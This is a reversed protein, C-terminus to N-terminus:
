GSCRSRRSRRRWCARTRSSGSSSRACSTSGSRSSPRISRRRSGSASAPFRRAPTRSWARCSTSARFWRRRLQERRGDHTEKATRTRAVITAWCPPRSRQGSGHRRDARSTAGARGPLRAPAAPGAAGEPRDHAPQRRRRVGPTGSTHLNDIAAALQPNRDDLMRKMAARETPPTSATAGARSARRARRLNGETWVKAIRNLMPRTRGSELDDLGSSVFDITEAQSPMQLAQMQLRPRRSRPSPSASSARWSPSCSTSRM